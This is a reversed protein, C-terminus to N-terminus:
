MIFRIEVYLDGKKETNPVKKLFQAVLDHEGQALSAYIWYNYTLKDNYEERLNQLLDFNKMARHNYWQFVLKLDNLDILRAIEENEAMQIPTKGKNDPLHPDAGAELLIKTVENKGNVAAWHLATDGDKGQINIDAGHQILISVTSDNGPYAAKHLATWGYIDRYKDPDAGAGLFEIVRTDDGVSSADYLKKNIDSELDSM